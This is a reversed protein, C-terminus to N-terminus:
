DAIVEDEVRLLEVILGAFLVVANEVDVKWVEVRCDVVLETETTDVLEALEMLTSLEVDATVEDEVRLLEVNLGAFIVVARGVDVKWVEVRCVVVLETETTDVLEILEVLTGFEVDINVETEVSVLEVIFGAFLEILEAFVGITADVLEVAFGSLLVVLVVLATAKVVVIKEVEITVGLLVELTVIDVVVIMETTVTVCDVLEELWFVGLGNLEVLVIPAVVTLEADAVLVTIGFGV